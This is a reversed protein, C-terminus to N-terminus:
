ISRTSFPTRFGNENGCVLENKLSGAMQNNQLPTNKLENANEDFIDYIDICRKRRVRDYAKDNSCIAVCKGNDKKM